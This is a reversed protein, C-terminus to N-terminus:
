LFTMATSTFIPMVFINYVLFRCANIQSKIDGSETNLEQDCENEYLSQVKKKKKRCCLEGNVVKQKRM